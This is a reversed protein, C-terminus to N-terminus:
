PSGTSAGTVTKSLVNSSRIPSPPLSGLIKIQKRELERKEMRELVAMVAKFLRVRLDAEKEVMKMKTSLRVVLIKKEMWLRRREKEEAKAQELQVPLPPDM